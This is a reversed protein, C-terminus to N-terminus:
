ARRDGGFLVGAARLGADTAEYSDVTGDRSWRKVLGKGLLSCLSAAHVQLERATRAHPFAKALEHLAQKAGTTM